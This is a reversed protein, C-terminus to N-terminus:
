LNMMIAKTKDLNKLTYVIKKNNGKDPLSVNQVDLVASKKQTSKGFALLILLAIIVYRLM